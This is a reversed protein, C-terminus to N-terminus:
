ESYRRLALTGNHGGFGFSNSLVIDLKAERPKNPVYDLDCEPDPVEYNITAPILNHEIAQLCAIAEVVGAAGLLHGHMSKTSSVPIQYARDGFVTKIAMTEFKDNLPTSTGHANIYDVQDITIEADDLAMKMCQAAGAGGPAPATLHYADSSSGYGIIEGYIKANRARAHELEELVVMGAGESMIFGDREMDFPRSAKEPADNRTSLAKMACFGALGLRTTSAESGGSIMVDAMGSRIGLVAEGVTHTSTACATVVSINPGKAGFRMAIQGPLLNIIMMPVLLPSVRSPGRELMIAHQQEITSLGGIGSSAYIGIRAPDEKEFDLQAEEVAQIAAIIGLQCFRDMRKVQKRDLYQAIDLGNVEGAIQAEFESPDFATIRSIGSRCEALATWFEDPNNGIPSIVGRGTVVVRRPSM